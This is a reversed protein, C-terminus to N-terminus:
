FNLSVKVVLFYKSNNLEKFDNNDKIKDYLKVVEIGKFVSSLLVFRKKNHMLDKESNM